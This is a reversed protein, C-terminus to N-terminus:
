PLLTWGLGSYDTDVSSEIVISSPIIGESSYYLKSFDVNFLNTCVTGNM